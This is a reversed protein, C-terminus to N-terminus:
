SGCRVLSIGLHQSFLLLAIGRRFTANASASKLWEQWRGAITDYFEDPAGPLQSKPSWDHNGLASFVTSNPFNTELIATLNDIISYVVKKNLFTDNYIHPTDDSFCM